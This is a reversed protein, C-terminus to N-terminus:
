APGHTLPLLAGSSEFVIVSPFGRRNFHASTARCLHSRTSSGVLCLQVGRILFSPMLFSVSLYSAPFLFIVKRRLLKIPNESQRSVEELDRPSKDLDFLACRARRDRLSESTLFEREIAYSAAFYQRRWNWLSDFM